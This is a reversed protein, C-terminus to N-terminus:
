NDSTRASIDIILARVGVRVFVSIIYILMCFDIYKDSNSKSM